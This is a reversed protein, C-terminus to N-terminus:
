TGVRDLRQERAELRLEFGGAVQRHAPLDHIGRNDGRRLLAVGLGLLCVDFGSTDRRAPRLARGLQALLISVRAPRHLEAFSLRALIACRLTVDRYWGEPILIMDRNIPPVSQDAAPRGAVRRRM